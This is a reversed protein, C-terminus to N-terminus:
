NIRKMSVHDDFNTKNSLVDRGVDTHLTLERRARQQRAAVNAGDVAEEECDLINQLEAQRDITSRSELTATASDAIPTYCQGIPGKKMVISCRRM